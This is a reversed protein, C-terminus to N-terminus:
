YVEFRGHEVIKGNVFEVNEFKVRNFREREFFLINCMNGVLQNVTIEKYCSLDLHAFRAEEFVERLLLNVDDKKWLENGDVYESDHVFNVTVKNEDPDVLPM